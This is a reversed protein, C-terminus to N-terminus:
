LEKGRRKRKLAEAQVINDVGIVENILICIVEMDMNGRGGVKEQAGSWQM